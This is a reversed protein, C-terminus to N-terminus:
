TFACGDWASAAGVLFATQSSPVQVVLEVGDMSQPAALLVVDGASVMGGSSAAWVSQNFGESALLLGGPTLLDIAGSFGVPGCAVTKVEMGVLALLLGPEAYSIPFTYCHAGAYTWHAAGSFNFAIVVPPPPPAGPGGSSSAPTMSAGVPEAMSRSCADTLLQEVGPLPGGPTDSVVVVLGTAVVIAVALGARVVAPLAPPPSPNSAM